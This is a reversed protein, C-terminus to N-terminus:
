ELTDGLPTRNLFEKVTIIVKGTTKGLYLFLFSVYPYFFSLFDFAYTCRFIYMTYKTTKSIGLELMLTAKIFYIYGFILSELSRM